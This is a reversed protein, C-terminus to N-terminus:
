KAKKATIGRFGHRGGKVFVDAMAALKWRRGVDDGDDLAAHFPVARVVGAQAPFKLFASEDVVVVEGVHSQVFALHAVIPFLRCRSRCCWCTAAFGRNM